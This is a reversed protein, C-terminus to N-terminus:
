HLPIFMFVFNVFRCCSTRSLILWDILDCGRGGLETPWIVMSLRADFLKREWARHQEFGEHTDYSPLPARPVNAELWARVEGRFARQAPSFNLDM